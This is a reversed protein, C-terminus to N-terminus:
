GTTIDFVGRAPLETTLVEDRGGGEAFDKDHATELARQYIPAYKAIREDDDSWIAAHLLAGFLYVDPASELLWNTAADSGDHLSFDAGLIRNVDAEVLQIWNEIRATLDSRHLYSEIEDKLEGFNTIAM